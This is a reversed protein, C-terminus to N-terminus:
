DQRPKKTTPNAELDNTISRGARQKKSDKRHQKVKERRAYGPDEAYYKFDPRVDEPILPRWKDYLEIWKIDQLGVPPISSM